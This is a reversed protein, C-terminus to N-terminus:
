WVREDSLLGQIIQNPDQKFDRSQVRLLLEMPLEPLGRRKKEEEVKEWLEDTFPKLSEYTTWDPGRHPELMKEVLGIFWWADHGNYQAQSWLGVKSNWRGTSEKILIKDKDLYDGLIAFVALFNNIAGIDVYAAKVMGVLKNRLEDKIFFDQVVTKPDLNHGRIAEYLLFACRIPHNEFDLNLFIFDEATTHLVPVDGRKIFKAGDVYPSKGGVLKLNKIAIGYLPCIIDRILIWVFPERNLKSAVSGTLGSDNYSSYTFDRLIAIVTNFIHIQESNPIATTDAIIPVNKIYTAIIQFITQSLKTSHGIVIKGDVLQGEKLSNDFKIPLDVFTDSHSQSVNRLFYEALKFDSIKM